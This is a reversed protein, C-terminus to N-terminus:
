RTRSSAVQPQGGATRRSTASAARRPAPNGQAAPAHRHLHPPGREPVYGTGPLRALRLKRRAARLRPPALPRQLPSWGVRRHPPAATGHARPALNGPQRQRQGPTRRCASRPRLGRGARLGPRSAALRRPHRSRRTQRPRVGPVGGRERPRRSAVPRVGAVRVRRIRIRALTRVGSRLHSRARRAPCGREWPRVGGRSREAGTGRAGRLRSASGGRFGAAISRARPSDAGRGHWRVREPLLELRARLRRLRPLGAALTAAGGGPPLQAGGRVRSAAAAGRRRAPRPDRGGARPGTRLRRARHAARVRAMRPPRRHQPGAEGSHQGTKSPRDGGM